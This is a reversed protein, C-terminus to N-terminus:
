HYERGSPGANDWVYNRDETQDTNPPFFNGYGPMPAMSSPARPPPMMPQAGAYGGGIDGLTYQSPQGRQLGAMGQSHPTNYMFTSVGSSPIVPAASPHASSVAWNAPGVGMGANRVNLPSPAYSLEMPRQFSPPPPPPPPQPQYQPFNEGLAHLMSPNASRNLMSRRAGVSKNKNSSVGGRRGTTARGSAGGQSRNNAASGGRRSPNGKRYRTTSQVGETVAWEQLKWENSKKTEQSEPAAADGSSPKQEPKFFAGNMSLNHRISNQWGKSEGKAKDTNERFWQYLEQLTMSHTDRTMFAKFILRAYPEGSRPGDNAELQEAPAAAPERTEEANDLRFSDDPEGTPFPRVPMSLQPSRGSTDEALGEDYGEIPDLDLKFSGDLRYPIPGGFSARAMQISQEELSTAHIGMSRNPARVAPQDWTFQPYHSEPAPWNTPSPIASGAHGQIGSSFGPAPIIPSGLHSVNDAGEPLQRFDESPSSNTYTGRLSPTSRHASPQFQGYYPGVDPRSQFPPQDSDPTLIPESLETGQSPSSIYSLEEATMEFSPVASQTTCYEGPNPAASTQPYSVLLRGSSPPNM